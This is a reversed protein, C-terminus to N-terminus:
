CPVWFRLNPLHKDKEFEMNNEPNKGIGTSIRRGWFSARFSSYGIGRVKSQSEQVPFCWQGFLVRFSWFTSIRQKMSLTFISWYLTILINEIVYIVITYMYIYNYVAHIYFLIYMEKDYKDDLIISCCIEGGTRKAWRMSLNEPSLRNSGRHDTWLIPSSSLSRNWSMVCKNSCYREKRTVAYTYHNLPWM